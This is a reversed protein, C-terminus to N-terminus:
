IATDCRRATSSANPIRTTMLGVRGPGPKSGALTSNRQFVCADHYLPSVPARGHPFQQSFLPCGANRTLTSTLGPTCTTEAWEPLPTKVLRQRSYGLHSCIGRFGTRQLTIATVGIRGRLADCVANLLGQGSSRRERGLLAVADRRDHPATRCSGPVLFGGSACDPPLTRPSSCCRRYRQRCRAPPCAVATPEMREGALVAPREFGFSAGAALRRASRATPSRIGRDTERGSSRVATTRCASRRRVHHPM